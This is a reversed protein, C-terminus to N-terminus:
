TMVDFQSHVGVPIITTAQQATAAQQCKLKLPSMWTDGM